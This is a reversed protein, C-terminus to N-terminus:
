TSIALIMSVRASVRLVAAALRASVSDGLCAHCVWVRVSARCGVQEWVDSAHLKREFDTYGGPLATVAEASLQCTFGDLSAQKVGDSGSSPPHRVVARQYHYLLVGLEASFALKSLGLLRAPMRGCKPFQLEDRNDGYLLVVLLSSAFHKLVDLAGDDAGGELYELSISRLASALVQGVPENGGVGGAAGVTETGGGGSDAAAPVELLASSVQRTVALPTVQALMRSTLRDMAVQQVDSEVDRLLQQARLLHKIRGRFLALDVLSDAAERRLDAPATKALHALLDMFQDLSTATFGDFVVEGEEGRKEHGAARLSELHALMGRLTSMAQQALKPNSEAQAAILGAVLGLVVDITSSVEGGFLGTRGGGLAHGGCDGTGARAAAQAPGTM